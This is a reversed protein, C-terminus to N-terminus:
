QQLEELDKISFIVLKRQKYSILKNKKMEKLFKSTTERTLGAISAVCLHTIPISIRITNNEKIGYRKALFLLTNIVRKYAKDGLAHHMRMYLIELQQLLRQCLDILVKPNSLIVKNFSDKSIRAITVNTMAEYFYENTLNSIAWQLPFYAKPKFINLTLEKGDKSVSYNRVYGKKIFYVGQPTDEPRLITEGKRYNIKIIKFGSM